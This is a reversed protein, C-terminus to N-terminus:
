KKSLNKGSFTDTQSHCNACLFRLNELRNDTHIGNIHDLQLILEKGLWIGENGCIECKYPILNLRIIRKKLTQTNYTSNEILVESLDYVPNYGFHSYDIKDELLRKELGKYVSQSRTHYGLKKIVENKSKSENVILELQEKTFSKLISVM